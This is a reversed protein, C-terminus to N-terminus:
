SIVLLFSCLVPTVLEFGPAAPHLGFQLEAAIYGLSCSRQLTVWVAAGSCHLELQLEAAIYSM